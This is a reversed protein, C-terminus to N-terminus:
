KEKFTFSKNGDAPFVVIPSAARAGAEDTIKYAMIIIEDNEHFFHACPGNMCIVGSGNEGALIYTEIRSGDRMNTVMVREYPFMGTADLLNKDITISGVYDLRAQTVVARHIKAKLIHFQDQM